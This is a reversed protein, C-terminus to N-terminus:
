AERGEEARPIRAAALERYRALRKKSINGACVPCGSRQRGARTDVRTRWVHGEPCQWWILRSSGFTVQQPTLEGNLTPHWQAAIAPEVTGLDNFGVLVRRNTCYPCCQERATRFAIRMPFSHDKECKWWVMESSGFSVDAPTRGANKASDWERLLEERHNERCFEELTKNM